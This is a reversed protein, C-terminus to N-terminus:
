RKEIQKLRVIRFTQTAPSPDVLGESVARVGFRYKGPRLRLNGPSKCAKFVLPRFFPRRKKNRPKVQRSLACEFTAGATSSSFRFKAWARRAKGRIVIRKKPGKDISTEPAVAPPNQVPPTQPVPPELGSIRGVEFDNTGPDKMTVWITNNPGAAIQRVFFRDEAGGIFISEGAATFRQAGGKRAAWFALDSGYAVGFPDVAPLEMVTATTPSTIVGVQTPMNSQQSFGIHGEPNGAVGQSQGNLPYSTQEGAPSVTVVRNKNQDAIALLSGAVDIDKPTLEPVVIKKAETPDAPPFHVLADTTAVWMEGNPGAVISSGAKIDPVATEVAAVPNAPDFSAVEENYSLWIRGEVGAAIGDPQTVNEVAFKTVQGEPTIRAVDDGGDEITLWMNGDPGEIIKANDSFQGVDFHGDFVPAALASSCFLLLAALATVLLAAPKRVPM